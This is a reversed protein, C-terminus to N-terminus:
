DCQQLKVSNDRMNDNQQKKRPVNPGQANPPHHRAKICPRPVQHRAEKGEEIVIYSIIKLLCCICRGDESNSTSKAPPLAVKCSFLSLFTDQTKKSMKKQNM